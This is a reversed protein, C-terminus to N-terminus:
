LHSTMLNLITEFTEVFTIPTPSCAKEADVIFLHENKIAKLDSFKQWIKKEENGTIGMTVIFIYDPNKVLVSERTMTGHKLDNAINEGGAYIIYDNMFTKPLVTFLPDAGIQFFISPCNKITIQNKLEDLRKKSANVIEDAKKEHGTLQGLRMFQECIENFNEPTPFSEVKIGLKQLTEITEPSTITTTIVLDPLLSATKEINVKIASAIIEKHDALAETCYSTCGILQNQAELYYINKTLSPALSIIRKAPQNYGHIASLLLFLVLFTQIQKM